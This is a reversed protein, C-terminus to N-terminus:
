TQNLDYQFIFRILVLVSFDLIIGGGPRCIWRQGRKVKEGEFIITEHREHGQGTSWKHWNADYDTYDHERTQYSSSHGIAVSVHVFSRAPQGNFVSSLYERLWGESSM